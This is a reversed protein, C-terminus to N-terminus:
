EREGLMRSSGQFAVNGKKKKREFERVKSEV